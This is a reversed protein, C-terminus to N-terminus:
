ERVMSINYHQAFLAIQAMTRTGIKGELINKNLEKDTMFNISKALRHLHTIGGGVAFHEDDHADFCLQSDNFHILEIAQIEVKDALITLYTYPDIGSAFVHCSDVCIKFRKKENESFKNYFDAFDSLLTLTETGLGAPTELLLPCLETSYKLFKKINEFMNSMAKKTSLTKSKGVHVVVGRGSMKSCNKLDSKLSDFCEDETQCLNILYLSHVYMKVKSKVIISNIDKIERDTIFNGSKVKPSRLFIQFPANSKDCWSTISATIDGNFQKSIHMGVLNFDFAALLVISDRMSIKQNEELTRKKIFELLPFHDWKKLNQKLVLKQLPLFILIKNLNPHKEKQICFKILLEIYNSKFKRLLKQKKIEQVKSIVVIKGIFDESQIEIM